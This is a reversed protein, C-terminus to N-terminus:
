DEWEAYLHGGFAETVKAVANMNIKSQVRRSVIESCKLANTLKDLNVGRRRAEAIVDRVVAPKLAPKPRRHIGLENRKGCVANKTRGIMAAIEADSHFAAAQRIVHLDVEKWRNLKGLGLARVRSMIAAYTREPLLQSARKLDPYVRRLIKDERLTWPTM